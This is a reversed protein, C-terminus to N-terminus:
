VADEMMFYSRRTGKKKDLLVTMPFVTVGSTVAAYLVNLDKVIVDNSTVGVIPTDDDRSEDLPNYTVLYSPGYQSEIPEIGLIEIRQGQRATLNEDWPTEHSVFDSLKPM